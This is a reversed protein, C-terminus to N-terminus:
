GPLRRRRRRDAAAPRARGRLRHEHRRRHLLPRAAPGQVARHRDRARAPIRKRRAARRRPLRRAGDVPRGREDAGRHRRRAAAVRRHLDRADRQQRDLAAGPPAAAPRRPHDRRDHRDGQRRGALRRRRTTGRPSPSSRCCRWSRSRPSTRCCRSASCARARPRAGHLNREALVGLGIATSSMALGLAAVLPSGGTSAAPSRASRSCCRGLRVAARQGLRLHAEAAVLAAAARAGPRGPVADARRRVRRLQLM